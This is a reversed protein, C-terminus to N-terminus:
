KRQKLTQVEKTLRQVASILVPVIKEYNIYLYKEQQEIPRNDDKNLRQREDVVEPIIDMVDQALLGLDNMTM